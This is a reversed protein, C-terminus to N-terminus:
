LPIITTVIFRQRWPVNLHKEKARKSWQDCKIHIHTCAKRSERQDITVLDEISLDICGRKWVKM